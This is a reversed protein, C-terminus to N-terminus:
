VALLRMGARTRMMMIVVALLRRSGHVVFAWTALIPADGGEAIRGGTGPDISCQRRDVGLHSCGGFGRAQRGNKNWDPEVDNEGQARM